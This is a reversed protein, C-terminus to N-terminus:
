FEIDEKIRLIRRPLFGLSYIKKSGCDCFFPGQLKYQLAKQIIFILNSIKKIVAVLYLSTYM